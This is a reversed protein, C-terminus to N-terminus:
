QTLKNEKMEINEGEEELGGVKVEGILVDNRSQGMTGDVTEM